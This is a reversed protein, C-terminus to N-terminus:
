SRSPTICYYQYCSNYAILLTVYPSSMHIKSSIDTGFGLAPIGSAHFVSTTRFFFDPHFLVTATLSLVPSSLDHVMLRIFHRYDGLLIELITCDCPSPRDGLRSTPLKTFSIHVRNPCYGLRLIAIWDESHCCGM